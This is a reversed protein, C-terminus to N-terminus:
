TLTQDSFDNLGITSFDNLGNTLFFGTRPAEHCVVQSQSETFLGPCRQKHYTSSHDFPDPHPFCVYTTDWSGKLRVRRHHGSFSYLLPKLLLRPAWIGSNLNQSHNILGTNKALWPEKGWNEWRYFPCSLFILWSTKNSIWNLETVWDHEVRQLSMSQLVRPKGTQWWSRSSVWTWRTLSAM